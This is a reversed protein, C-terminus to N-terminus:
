QTAPHMNPAKLIEIPNSHTISYHISSKSQSKSTRSNRNVQLSPSLVCGGWCWRFVGWNIRVLRALSTLKERYKLLEVGPWKLGNFTLRGCTIVSQMSDIWIREPISAWPSGTGVRIWNQESSSKSIIGHFWPGLWLRFRLLLWTVYLM